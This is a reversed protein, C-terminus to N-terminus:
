WGREALDLLEAFDGFWAIAVLGGFFDILEALHEPLDRLGQARLASRPPPRPRRSVSAACTRPLGPLEGRGGVDRVSVLARRERRTHVFRADFPTKGERPQWKDTNRRRAPGGTRAGSRERSDGEGSPWGEGQPMGGLGTAIRRLAKEMGTYFSEILAAAGYVVLTEAESRELSERAHDFEGTLRAVRALEDDLEAVLLRLRDSRREASM